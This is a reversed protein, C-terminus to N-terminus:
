KNLEGMNSQLRVYECYLSLQIQRPQPKELLHPHICPTIIVLWWSIWAHVLLRSPNLSPLFTTADIAQLFQYASSNNPKILLLSVLM